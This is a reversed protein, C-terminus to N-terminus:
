DSFFAVTPMGARRDRLGCICFSVSDAKLKAIICFVLRYDLSWLTNCLVAGRYRRECMLIQLKHMKATLPQLGCCKSNIVRPMFIFYQMTSIDVDLFYRNFHAKHCYWFLNPKGFERKYLPNSEYTRKLGFM